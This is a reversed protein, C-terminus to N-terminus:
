PKIKKKKEAGIKSNFSYCYCFNRLAYNKICKSSMGYSNIRVIKGILKFKPSLSNETDELEFKADFKADNPYTQFIISYETTKGKSVQADLVNKLELEMCLEKFEKLLVRNIYDVVYLAGSQVIKDKIDIDISLACSCLYDPINAMKCNRNSIPTFLSYGKPKNFLSRKKIFDNLYNSQSLDM